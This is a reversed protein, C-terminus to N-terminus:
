LEESQLAAAEEDVSPTAATGVGSPVEQAEGGEGAGAAAVAPPLSLSAVVEDPDTLVTVGEPLSLDKVKVMDGPNELIEAPAGLHAPVDAPFCEVQISTLHTEIVLGKSTAPARGELVVPVETHIKTDHRIALLDLHLYADTIPDKQIERPMTLVPKERGEVALEVLVNRGAETSLARHIEKRDVVVPTPEMGTGYVVAPVLGERRAKRAAGKGIETRLRAEVRVQMTASGVGLAILRVAAGSTGRM